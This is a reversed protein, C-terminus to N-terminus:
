WFVVCCYQTGACPRNHHHTCCCDRSEKSHQRTETEGRLTAACRLDALRVEVRFLVPIVGVGSVKKAITAAQQQPYRISCLCSSSLMMRSSLPTHACVSRQAHHQSPNVELYRAVKMREVGQAERPIKICGRCVCRRRSRGCTRTQLGWFVPMAPNFFGAACLGVLCASTAILSIMRKTLLQLRRKRWSCQQM